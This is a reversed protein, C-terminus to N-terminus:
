WDWKVTRRRGIVFCFNNRYNEYDFDIFVNVLELLIISFLGLISKGDVRYRGQEVIINDDYYQTNIEVFDKVGQITKTRNDYRYRLIYGFSKRSKNM